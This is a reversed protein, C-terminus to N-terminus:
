PARGITLHVVRPARLRSHRLVIRVSLKGRRALARRASSALRLKLRVQGSLTTVATARAVVRIRGDIRVQASASVKGALPAVVLLTMEGSRVIRRREAKGVHRLSLKREDREEVQTMSEPLPRQLREGAPLVPCTDSEECGGGPSVREPFGGGVRAAYLDQDGRDDDDSVLSEHSTFFVTSGDASAGYYQVKNGAGSTVLGLSGDSWEYIDITTNIDAPLLPESTTFFLRRGDQSIGHPMAGKPPGSFAITQAASAAFAGNGDAPGRSVRVTTGDDASYRYVDLQTDTDDATLVATTSLLLHEGDPTVQVDEAIGSSSVNGSPWADSAAIKAVFRLGQDDIAYVSPVGPTGHGPELQGLAVFYVRSGDDALYVQAAAPVNAAVGPPGISVRTLENDAVDYRYLDRSSDVDDSTLQQTTVLFASSGTPTAGVFRVNQAANCDVRACRSASIETTTSGDERMYIRQRATGCSGGPSMVFLRKGDGSIAGPPSNSAGIGAGCPSLLAGASDVGALRLEHGVFEYAGSGSTRGADSPLLKGQSQFAVHRADDSVASVTVGSGGGLLSLTGDIEERYLGTDPSSPAGPLLPLASSWIWTMLDKSIGVPSVPFFALSGVSYAHTVPRAQWGDVDRAAINPTLLGGSEAGPVPGFTAYAIRDGRADSGLMSFIPTAEPDPASVLEWARSHGPVEALATHTGWGLAIAVVALV